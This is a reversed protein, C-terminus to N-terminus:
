WGLEDDADGAEVVPEPEVVPEGDVFAHDAYRLTMFVRGEFKGRGLNGNVYFSFECKRGEDGATITGVQKGWLEFELWNTKKEGEISAHVVQKETTAGDKFEITEPPHVKSVTATIKNM